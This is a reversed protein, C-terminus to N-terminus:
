PSLQRDRAKLHAIEKRLRRAREQFHPMHARVQMFLFQQESAEIEATELVILAEEYQGLHLHLEAALGRLLPKTESAQEELEVEVQRLLTTAEVEDKQMELWWYRYEDRRLSPDELSLAWPAPRACQWRVFADLWIHDSETTGQFRLLEAQAEDCQELLVRAYTLATLSDTAPRGGNERRTDLRLARELHPLSERTRGELLLKRGVTYHLEAQEEPRTEGLEQVVQGVENMRGLAVLGVARQLGLSYSLVELGEAQVEQQQNLLRVQLAGLEEADRRRLGKYNKQLLEFAARSSEEVRPQSETPIGLPLGNWGLVTPEGIAFHLSKRSKDVRFCDPSCLGPPLLATWHLSSWNLPRNTIGPGRAQRKPFGQTPQVRVSHVATFWGLRNSIQQFLLEDQGSGDLNLHGLLRLHGATELVVKHIARGPDYFTAFSPFNPRHFYIVLIEHIGDGDLDTRHPRGTYTKSYEHFADSVKLTIWSTEGTRPDWRRLEQTHELRFRGADRNVSWVSCGGPDTRAVVSGNVSIEPDKHLLTGGRYIGALDSKQDPVWRVELDCDEGALDPPEFHQPGELLPQALFVLYLLLAASVGALVPKLWRQRPPPESLSFQPRESAASAAGQALGQKQWSSLWADLKAPSASYRPKEGSGVATVPLGEERYYRKATNISVGLHSAIQKWGDLKQDDQM